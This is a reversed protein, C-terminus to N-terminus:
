IREVVQEMRCLYTNINVFLGPVIVCIFLIFIVLISFNNIKKMM